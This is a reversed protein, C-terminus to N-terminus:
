AAVVTVSERVADVVRQIEADELEPFMPLSLSERAHAETVPFEGPRYGLEELAPQLHLPLPYHLGTAIGAATLRERVEDRALTRIAYLHWVHEVDHAARPPRVSTAAFAETYAEAHARRLGNWRELHRLKVRLVAAQLTDLRENWGQVVHLYKREQGIDRLLRIRRALEGNNTTVAGADGYAGLNKGPYFSFAGVDGLAGVRRGQFRAGHAQCADEVFAVGRADCLARLEDVRAPQGYLHVAILAKTSSTMAAAACDVDITATADDCDVLVPRAGLKLVPVITSIFTNAPAIVEDGTGIGLAELALHLAATGSGVGVCHAAECYAAFEREFRDVEEGLIYQTSAVVGLLVPDIEDKISEYQRRLDVFAISV